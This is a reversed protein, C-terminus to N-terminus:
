SLAREGVEGHGAVPGNEDHDGGIRAV